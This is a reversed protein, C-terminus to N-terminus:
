RDLQKKLIIVALQKGAISNSAQMRNLIHKFRYFNM